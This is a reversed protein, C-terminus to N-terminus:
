RQQTSGARSAIIEDADWGGGLAKALDVVALRVNRAAIIQSTQALLLQRQADLVELYPSYGARYRMDSLELVQTLKDKRVTQAALAARTTENASLADHADRFAGQVTKAYAVIQENRAATKADVNAETAKLGLLPQALSAGISWILAPGSVLNRLAAAEHGLAATLSIAPFYDARAVDQIKGV